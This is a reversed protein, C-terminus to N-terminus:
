ESQRIEGFRRNVSVKRSQADITYVIAAELSREDYLYRISGREAWWNKRQPDFAMRLRRTAWAKLTVRIQNPHVDSASVVIHIHNSRCNVAHLPWGKCRCTESIQSVVADRQTVTLQCADETM